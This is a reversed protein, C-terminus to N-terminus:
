CKIMNLYSGDRVAADIMELAFPLLMARQTRTLTVTGTERSEGSEADVAPRRQVPSKPTASAFRFDRLNTTATIHSITTTTPRNVKEAPAAAACTEAAERVLRRSAALQLNALRVLDSTPALPSVVDPSTEPALALAVRKSPRLSTSPPISSFLQLRLDEHSNLHPRNGALAKKRRLRAQLLEARIERWLSDSM